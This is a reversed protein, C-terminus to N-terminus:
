FYNDVCFIPSLHYYIFVCLALLHGVRLVAFLFCLFLVLCALYIWQSDPFPEPPTAEM